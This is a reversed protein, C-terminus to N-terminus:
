ARLAGIWLGAHALDRPRVYDGSLAVLLEAVRPRAALFAMILRALKPSRLGQQLTLSCRSRGRIELGLDRVYAQLDASSYTPRLGLEGLHNALLKAGVLAFYIGEGTLPDIYGGADGVLAAGDFVQRSTRFALPGVGRLREVQTAGALVTRMSPCARVSTEFFSQASLRGERLAGRDVVLNVSLLGDDVFSAAFYGREMLHVQSFGTDKPGRMRTTLALKDLWDIRERVGLSQAVMSRIGDAGITVRALITRTAGQRDRLSAGYVKGAGDQVLGTLAWGPHWEVRGAALAADVLVSDLVERRLALGGGPPSSGRVSTFPARVAYRHGHLTM